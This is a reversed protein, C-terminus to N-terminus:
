GPIPVAIEVAGCSQIEVHNLGVEDLPDFFLVSGCELDQERIDHSLDAFAKDGVRFGVLDHGPSLGADRPAWPVAHSPLIQGPFSAVKM